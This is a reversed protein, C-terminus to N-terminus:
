LEIEVQNRMFDEFGDRKRILKAKGNIILVEAPKPRSNYHSSMSFGYAGANEIILLDKERVNNLVKNKAFNDIECLNGVVTYEKEEGEPNSINVINHWANYFMPRILHSFGSNIGVFNTQGNTKIIEVTTLLYGATSVLFRGPEFWLQLERGYEKCFESFVKKFLQGLDNINFVQDDDSQVVSIGGGFDFYELHPFEKALDFIIKAGKLFVEKSMIVHSSHLHIGNVRIRYKKIIEHLKDFQNLSIGFKSQKHWAEVKESEAEAVVNPNLRIFCPVSEGFEKGLKELNSLNEINIATGIKIAQRIEEFDVVNPTFVIENAKFGAKLAMQIEPISVSDIGTGLKKMLKLISINSNAKMAYKIQMDVGEFAKKFIEVQSKIILADYIYVPTEFKAAIDSVLVGGITYENNILNM